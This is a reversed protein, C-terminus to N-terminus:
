ANSAKTRVKAPAQPITQPQLLTVLAIAQLTTAKAGLLMAEVQISSASTLARTIRQDLAKLDKLPDSPDELAAVVGAAMRRAQAASGFTAALEEFSQLPHARRLQEFEAFVQHYDEGRVHAANRLWQEERGDLVLTTDGSTTTQFEM